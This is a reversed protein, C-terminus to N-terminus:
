CTSRSNCKRIKCSRSRGAAQMSVPGLSTCSCKRTIKDPCGGCRRSPVGQTHERRRQIHMYICVHTCACTYIYMNSVCVYTHIYVFMCVYIYRGCRVHPERCIYICICTQSVWTLIRIHDRRRSSESAYMCICTLMYVFIRIHIYLYM